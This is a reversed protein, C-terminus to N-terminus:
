CERASSPETSARAAVPLRDVQHRQAPQGQRHANQDIFRRDFHLVDMGLHLLGIGNGHSDPPAIGLCCYRAEQGHEADQGHENRREEHLPAARPRNRGSDSATPKAIIEDYRSELVSTGTSHTHSSLFVGVLWWEISQDFLM